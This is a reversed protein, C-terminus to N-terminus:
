MDYADMVDYTTLEMGERDEWTLLTVIGVVDNRLFFDIEPDLLDYLRDAEDQKPHPSNLCSCPYFYTWHRVETLMFHEMQGRRRAVFVRKAM